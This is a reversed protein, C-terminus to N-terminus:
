TAAEFTSREDEIQEDIKEDLGVVETEVVKQLRAPDESSRLVKSGLKV